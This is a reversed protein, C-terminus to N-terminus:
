AVIHLQPRPDPRTWGQRRRAAVGPREQPLERSPGGPYRHPERLAPPAEAPLHGFARHSRGRLESKARYADARVAPLTDGSLRHATAVLSRVVVSYPANLM